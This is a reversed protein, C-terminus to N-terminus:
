LQEEQTQRSVQSHITPKSQHPAFAAYSRTLPWGLAKWEEVTMRPLPKAGLKLEGRLIKLGREVLEKHSEKM